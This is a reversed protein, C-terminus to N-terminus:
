GATPIDDRVKRAKEALENALRLCNRRTCPQTVMGDCMFCYAAAESYKRLHKPLSEPVVEGHLKRYLRELDADDVAGLAEVRIGSMDISTGPGRWFRHDHGAELLKREIEDYAEQSLELIAIETIASAM